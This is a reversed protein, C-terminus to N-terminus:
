SELSLLLHPLIPSFGFEFGICSEVRPDMLPVFHNRSSVRGILNLGLVLFPAFVIFLISPDVDLFVFSGGLLAFWLPCMILNM